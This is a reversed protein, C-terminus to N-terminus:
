SVGIKSESNAMNKSWSLTNQSLPNSKKLIQSLPNTKINDCKSGSWAASLGPPPSCDASWCPHLHSTDSIGGWRRHEWGAKGDRAPPNSEQRCGRDSPIHGKRHQFEPKIGFSQTILPFLATVIFQMLTVNGALLLDKWIVFCGFPFFFWAKGM